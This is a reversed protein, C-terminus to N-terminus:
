YGWAGSMWWPLRRLSCRHSNGSGRLTLSQGQCQCMLKIKCAHGTTGTHACNYTATSVDQGKITFPKGNTKKRLYKCSMLTMVWLEQTDIKTGPKSLLHLVAAWGARQTPPSSSLGGEQCAPLHWGWRREGRCQHLVSRCWPSPRLPWLRDPTRWNVLSNQDGKFLQGRELFYDKFFYDKWLVMVWENCHIWTQPGQNERNAQLILFVSQSHYQPKGKKKKKNDGNEEPSWNWWPLM